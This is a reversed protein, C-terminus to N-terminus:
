WRLVARRLRAEADAAPMQGPTARAARDGDRRVAGSPIDLALGSGYFGAFQAGHGLARRDVVQRAGGSSWLQFTPDANWGNQLAALGLLRAATIDGADM